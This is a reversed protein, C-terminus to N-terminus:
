IKQNFARFGTEVRNYIDPTIDFEGYWAYEYNLTLSAFESKWNANKLEGVYQYNTKDPALVLQGAEALRHLVHLYHYRIALRLNQQALAQRILGEFDSDATIEEEETFSEMKKASKTERRFVGDALFLRYIIFLVFAGAGIWLIVQLLGGGPIRIRKTKQVTEGAGEKQLAKLLSDLNKAYAFDREEKWKLVSDPSIAHGNFYLTTDPPLETTEEEPRAHVVSTEPSTVITEPDQQIEEIPVLAGNRDRQMLSSDIYIYKKQQAPAVSFFFLSLVSILLYRHM